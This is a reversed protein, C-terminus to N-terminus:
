LNVLFTVRYGTQFFRVPSYAARTVFPPVISLYGSLSGSIRSTALFPSVTARGAAERMSRSPYVKTPHYESAARFVFIALGLLTLTFM